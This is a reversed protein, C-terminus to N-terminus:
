LKAEDLLAVAYWDRPMAVAGIVGPGPLVALQYTGDPQVISKSAPGQIPDYNLTSAHPNAYLPYYEVVAAKPPKGTAQETGRGHVLIGRVLEFDATIADLGPKVALLQRGAFYPQGSEATAWVQWGTKEPAVLIEYRGSGDTVATHPSVFSSEKA